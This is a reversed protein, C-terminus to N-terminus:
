DDVLKGCFPCAMDITTMVEGCEDCFIIDSHCDKANYKYAYEHLKQLEEHYLGDNLKCIRKVERLIKIAPIKWSLDQAYKLANENDGKEIADLFLSSVTERRKYIGRSLKNVVRYFLEKEEMTLNFISLNRIVHKVM